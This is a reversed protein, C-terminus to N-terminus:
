RMLNRNRIDAYALKIAPLERLSIFTYDEESSEEYLSKLKEALGQSGVHGILVAFGQTKAIAKGKRFANEYYEVTRINDLFVDRSLYPMYQRKVVLRVVSDSTTLSDIFVLDHKKLTAIVVRM